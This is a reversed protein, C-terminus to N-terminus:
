NNITIQGNGLLAQIIQYMDMSDMINDSNVDGAKKYANELTINGILNQIIQYMDMSDMQGDGSTDGYKVVTYTKGGVTITSGTGLYESSDTVVTGDAKKIVADSYQKKIDEAKTAPTMVMEKQGEDMKFEAKGPQTTEGSNGGVDPTPNTPQSGPGMNVQDRYDPIDTGLPEVYESSIYGIIEESNWRKASSNYSTARIMKVKTWSGSTGLYALITGKGVNGYSGYGTGPGTRLKVGADKMSKVTYLNEGSLSTPMQVRDPMNNYVPITFTINEDLIGSEVYIEYVSGAQSAPDRLNTMYQHGYFQNSPYTKSGAEETLIENGVVDFKYFYKTTQGVSVYNNALVRKAGDIIAYRPSTWGLERAKQLGREIAGSGDTAGYNYFNYLGEYGPVTGTVSRSPTRGIEQFITAVIHLPNIGAQRAAEMIDDVYPSLYTGNVAKAVVDRTVGTGNSLDLFQFIMAEGMFNRPDLYYNVMKASACYYRADGQRGCICLDLPDLVDSKYITNKLCQNENKSSTLDSWDIGTYYAKFEWNPHMYKLYALQKQYSEPFASIGSKVYQTYSGSAASAEHKVFFMHISTFVIILILFFNLIRISLKKM